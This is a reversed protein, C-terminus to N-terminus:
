ERELSEGVRVCYATIECIRDDKLTYLDCFAYHKGADKGTFTIDGTLAASDGDVILREININAKSDSCDMSKLWDAFAAKGEVAEDSNAMRFRIDDTVSSLITDLDPQAWANNFERLFKKVDKM